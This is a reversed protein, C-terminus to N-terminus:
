AYGLRALGAQIEPKEFLALHRPELVHRYRGVAGGEKSVTFGKQLSRAAVDKWDVAEARLGLHFAIKALAPGPGREVSALETMLDEYRIVLCSPRDLWGLYDLFDAHHDQIIAELQRAEDPYDESWKRFFAAQDEASLFIESHYWKLRSVMADRPDRVILIHKLSRGPLRTEMADAIFDRYHFHAPFVQGNVIRALQECSGLRVRERVKGQEDKIDYNRPNLHIDSGEWKGLAKVVEYLLHTGSKPIGNAIVASATGSRRESLFAQPADPAPGGWPLCKRLQDLWKM